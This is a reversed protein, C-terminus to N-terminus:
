QSTYFGSAVGARHAKVFSVECLGLSFMSHMDKLSSLRLNLVYSLCVGVNMKWGLGANM